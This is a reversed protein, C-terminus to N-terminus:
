VVFSCFVCVLCCARICWIMQDQQTITAGKGNGKKKKGKLNPRQDVEDVELENWGLQLDQEAVDYGYEPHGIDDAHCRRLLLDDLDIRVSKIECEGTVRHPM